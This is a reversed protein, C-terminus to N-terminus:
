GFQGPLSRFQGALLTFQELTMRGEKMEAKAVRMQDAEARYQQLSAMKAAVFEDVKRQSIAAEEAEWQGSYIKRLQILPFSAWGPGNVTLIMHAWCAGSEWSWKVLEVFERDSAGLGLQAREAVVETLTAMYMDKHEVFREWHDRPEGKDCDWSENTPRDELLWWPITAALQAPAAYTFELDILGAFAPFAPDEVPKLIVNKMSLDDCVLKARGMNYTPHVFDGLRSRLVTFARFLASAETENRAANPQMM